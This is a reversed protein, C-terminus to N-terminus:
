DVSSAPTHGHYGRGSACCSDDVRPTNSEPIHNALTYCLTRGSSVWGQPVPQGKVHKTSLVVDRDHRTATFGLETEPLAVTPLLDTLQDRSFLRTNPKPQRTGHEMLNVKSLATCPIELAQIVDVITKCLCKTHPCHSWLRGDHLCFWTNADNHEPGRVPCGKIVIETGKTLRELDDKPAVTKVIECGANKLWGIFEDVSIGCKISKAKTASETAIEVTPLQRSVPAATAKAFQSLTEETVVTPSAFEEIIFSPRCCVDDIGEPKSNLTGVARIMQENKHVSLDVNADASKCTQHLLNIFNKVLHECSPLM